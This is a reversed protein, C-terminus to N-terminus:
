PKIIKAIDMDKDFVIYITDAAQPKSEFVSLDEYSIRVDDVPFGVPMFRQLTGGDVYAYDMIEVIVMVLKLSHTTPDYFVKDIKELSQRYNDSQVLVSSYTENSIRYGARFILVVLILTISAVLRGWWGHRRAIAACEAIVAGLAFCYFVQSVLMYFASGYITRASILMGGFTMLMCWVGFRCRPLKLIAGLILVGIVIVFGIKSILTPYMSGHLYGIFQPINKSPAGGSTHERYYDDAQVARYWVVNCLLGYITPAILYKYWVVVKIGNGIIPLVWLGPILVWASPKANYGVIVLSLIFINSLIVNRVSYQKRYFYCGVLAGLTTTSAAIKDLDLAQWALTQLYPVSILWLGTAISASLRSKFIVMGLVFIAIATILHIIQPFANLCTINTGCARGVWTDFYFATSYMNEGILMWGKLLWSFSFDFYVKSRYEM